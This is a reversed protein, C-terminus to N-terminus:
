TSKNQKTKQVFPINDLKFLSDQEEERGRRKWYLITDVLGRRKRYKIIMFVMAAYFTIYVVNVYM